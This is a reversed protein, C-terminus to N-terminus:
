GGELRPDLADRLGDGLLNFGLVSLMISGRHGSASLRPGVVAGAGLPPSLDGRKEVAEDLRGLEAADFRLRIQESCGPRGEGIGRGDRQRRSQQGGSRVCGSGGCSHGKEFSGLTVGVSWWQRLEYFL